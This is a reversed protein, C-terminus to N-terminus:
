MRIFYFLGFLICVFLIGELFITFILYFVMCKVGLGCFGKIFVFVRFLLKVNEGGGIEERM